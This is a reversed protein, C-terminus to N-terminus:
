WQFGYMKCVNGYKKYWDWLLCCDKETCCHGVLTHLQSMNETLYSSLINNLHLELILLDIFTVVYIGGVASYNCVVSDLCTQIASYRIVACNNTHTHIYTHIYVCVCVCVCVCMYIYIYITQIASYRIVACNNTHTHIYIHIYIYICVYMCVCVCVCVCVCMLVQRIAHFMYLKKFQDIFAQVIFHTWVWIRDWIVSHFKIIGLVALTVCYINVCKWLTFTLMFKIRAWMLWMM